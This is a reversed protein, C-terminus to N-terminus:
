AAAAGLRTVRTIWKQVSSQKPYSAGSFWTFRTPKFGVFGLVQGRMQHILARRYVLRMFWGPTDSTIIVRATRGDLMPAPFGLKNPNRTDFTRGPIFMRDILGKLKAPLGGWWMPTTLVLHDSWEFDQLVQELVPELPKFDHYNGQGFDFDFVLDSLHVTKVDHGKARAAQAYTDAFTRSLSSEAPHGDLILIKKPQM